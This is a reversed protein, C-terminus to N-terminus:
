ANMEQEREGNGERGPEERDSNPGSRGRYPKRIQEYNMGEFGEYQRRRSPENTRGGGGQGDLPKGGTDESM